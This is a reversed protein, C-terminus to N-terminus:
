DSHRTRIATAYWTGPSCYFPLKLAVVGRQLPTSTVVTVNAGMMQGISTALAADGVAHVTQELATLSLPASTGNTAAITVTILLSGASAQLTILSPDVGYQTALLETLAEHQNDFEDISFDVTLHQILAGVQEMDTSHGVPILIPRAGGHLSDRLAGPCYFGSAPCPEPLSSGLPAWFGVPVPTCQGASYLGSSSGVYGGPCPVPEAAGQRCYFGALCRTCTTQGHERQFEGSGCLSCSESSANPAASGPLCITPATAGVACASGAVCATCNDTHALSPTSSYSGALCPQPASSGEVCVHGATCNQCVTAGYSAVFKGPPCLHCSGLAAVAAFTGPFCPSQEASGTPAYHGPETARCGDVSSLDVVPSVYGPPCALAATAGRTGTLDIGPCYRGPGCRIPDATGIPCYYGAWCLGSCEASSQQSTEYSGGYLGPACAFPYELDTAGPTVHAPPAGISLTRGASERQCTGFDIWRGLPAPLRYTVTGTLVFMSNGSRAASNGRLLTRAGLAVSGSRVYLAGGDGVAENLEFTCSDFSAIGGDVYVAGGNGETVFRRFTVNNADVHGGTVSLAGGHGPELPSSSGSGDEDLLSSSGSGFGSGAELDSGGSSVERASAHLLQRRRSSRTVVDAGDLECDDMQLRGAAVAIRGELRLGRMSVPPSGPLMALLSFGSPARLVTSSNGSSTGSLRVESALTSADFRLSVNLHYRLPGFAISLIHGNTAPDSWLRNLHSANAADLVHIV